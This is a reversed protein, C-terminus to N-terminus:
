ASAWTNAGFLDEVPMGAMNGTTAAMTSIGIGTIVALIQNESYGAFTFKGIDSQMVSGRKEILGKAMGSLAAYKSDSPPMGGRIAQVNDEPVGAQIAMTSHFAVTWPCKLTVANTLLVVQKESENFSGGHFNVFASVFANILVPSNAMTAAVNPIFGFKQKLGQLSQKSKEPASEITLVSFGQMMADDSEV